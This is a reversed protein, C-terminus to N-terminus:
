STTTRPRSEARSTSSARKGADCIGPRLRIAIQEGDDGPIAFPRSLTGVAGRFEQTVGPIVDCIARTPEPLLAVWAGAAVLGALGHWRPRRLAARARAYAARPVRRMPEGERM